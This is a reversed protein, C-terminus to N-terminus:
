QRPRGGHGVDLFQPDVALRDADVGIAIPRQEAHQAVVEAQGAGLVAAALATAAGARHQDVACGARDHMVLSPATAARSIVVM